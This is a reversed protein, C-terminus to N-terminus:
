SRGIVGAQVGYHIWARVIRTTSALLAPLSDAAPGRGEGVNVAAKGSNTLDILDTLCEYYVPCRLCATAMAEREDKTTGKLESYREDDKCPRDPHYYWPVTEPRLAVKFPNNMTM